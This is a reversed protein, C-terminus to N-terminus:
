RSREAKRQAPYNTLTQPGASNNDNTFNHTTDHVRIVHIWGKDRQKRVNGAEEKKKSLTQKNNNNHKGERGEVM